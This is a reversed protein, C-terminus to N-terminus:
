SGDSYLNLCEANIVYHKVFVVADVDKHVLSLQIYFYNHTLTPLNVNCKKNSCKNTM